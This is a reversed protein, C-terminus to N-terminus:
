QWGLKTTKPDLVANTMQELWKVTEDATSPTVLRWVLLTNVTRAEVDRKERDTVFGRAIVHRGDNSIQPANYTLGPSSALTWRHPVLPDLVEIAGRNALVILGTDPSMTAKRAGSVDFPEAHQGAVDLRVVFGLGDDSFAVARDSGAIGLAVVPKPLEVLPAVEGGARWARLRRREPFVVTGEADILIQGPVGAITTTSQLGSALSVRWLTTGGAAAADEAFVGAIWAPTSRSATLHVLKAKRNALVTRQQTGPDHLQVTGALTGLVLQNAAFTALDIAGLDQPQGGATILRAQHAADIVCAARGDQSGAIQLISSSWAGIPTTERTALDIWEAHTDVYAAILQDDGVFREITPVRLALRRPLVESLNWVLMRGEIMGVIYPSRASATVLALRGAPVFLSHDGDDTLVALGGHSAAVVVHDFSECLGIPEGVLQKRSTSISDRSTVGVGMPGITYTRGNSYAIFQRNGVRSKHVIQPVSSIAIDVAQRDTPDGHEVLAVLRTGDDSWDLDHTRGFLVEVPPVTPQTRDHLMLHHEGRLAIWRGDPSPTIQDLREEVPLQVPDKGALDLQWLARDDDVWYASAGVLELDRIPTPTALESVLAGTKGDHVALRKGTWVVIRREADAFRASARPGSSVIMQSSRQVLDYIRVSGDAGAVLVRQGDRAMELTEAHNPAPLSWVVGSARAAAAISRVERWQKTALPKIMAIAETPNSTVKSRAQQLMLKEARDEARRQAERAAAESERAKLAELDARDREGVVRTVAILGIVLLAVVAVGIAAVSVRHKRAFRVLRERPSYHHSAVLQGTLFRQLDEALARAHQYRTEPDHALAKDVITTLEPPVGHVLEGIPTPPASAAAKMMEDATKAHHPPKRSLLHYLTAGLAYVDCREDLVNGRLQEPAMFGPTGYVIGTRTKIVDDSRDLLGGGAGPAPEDPEGIVKALGWDIVITEGLDGCLINSPKIDRHVVGREHAHAIAHAAAVIHPLLALRQNLTGATAVLRELPRGGVKRMVYFPAGGPMLGADHVPVISPHELRATIRTERAFRRLADADLALAEKLAVVRGLVTDTADVVRGMGGRAIEEGLEYRPPPLAPPAVAPVRNGTLTPMVPPAQELVADSRVQITRPV